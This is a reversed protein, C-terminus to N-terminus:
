IQTKLSGSCFLQPFSSQDSSLFFGKASATRPYTKMILSLGFTASVALICPHHLPHHYMFRM